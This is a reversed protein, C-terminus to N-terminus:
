NTSCRNGFGFTMPELGMKGTKLFYIPLLKIFDM